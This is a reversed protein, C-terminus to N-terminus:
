SFVPINCSACNSNKRFTLFIGAKLTESGSPGSPSGSSSSTSITSMDPTSTQPIYEATTTTSSTPPPSPSTTPSIATNMSTTDAEPDIIDQNFAHTMEDKLFSGDIGTGEMKESANVLSQVLENFAHSVEAMSPWSSVSQVSSVMDIVADVAGHQQARYDSTDNLYSRYTYTLLNFYFHCEEDKGNPFDLSDGNGISDAIKDSSCDILDNSIECGPHSQHEEFLLQMRHQMCFDVSEKSPRQPVLVAEKFRFGLPLVNYQGLYNVQVCFRFGNTTYEDFGNHALIIVSLNYLGDLCNDPISMLKPNHSIRLNSLHELGEFSTNAIRALNPNYSIDLAILNEFKSLLESDIVELNDHKIIRLWRIESYDNVCQPSSDNLSDTFKCILVDGQCDCTCSVTELCLILVAVSLCCKYRHWYGKRLM